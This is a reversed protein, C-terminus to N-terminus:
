KFEVSNIIYGHIEVHVAEYFENMIHVGSTSLKIMFGPPGTHFAM